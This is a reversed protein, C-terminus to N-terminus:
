MASRYRVLTEATSLLTVLQVQQATHIEWEPNACMRHEEALLSEDLAVFVQALRGHTAGREDSQTCGAIHDRAALADRRAGAADGVNVRCWAIEALLGSQLRGMGETLATSSHEEFLHLAEAHRNLLTFVHARLIPVLSQLSATGLLRDFNATSEARLLVQQVQERDVEGTVALRRALNTQIWAVNHMLASLLTEDGDYTAHQRAKTYWPQALDYRNAWHFAQGAVLSARAHASKETPSPEALALQLNRVMAEFDQELYNMHALWAASLARVRAFDFASSLALSRSIKDRAATSLNGYFAVLGEALNTWASVLANPRMDYRAHIATLESRAEELHGQRALLAAREARLCTHELPDRCKAIRADLASLLRSVM